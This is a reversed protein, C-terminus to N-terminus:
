KTSSRVRSVKAGPPLLFWRARNATGLNYVRKADRLRVLVGNIRNARAGTAAVIEEHTMPRESILREVAAHLEDPTSHDGVVWTWRPREETGVNYVKGSTKLDRLAAAVPGVARGIADALEVISRPSVRLALEAQEVITLRRAEAAQATVDSTGRAFRTELEDLRKQNRETEAKLRAIEAIAPEVKRPNSTITKRASMSIM